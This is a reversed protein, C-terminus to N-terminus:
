KRAGQGEINTPKAKVRDPKESPTTLWPIGPLYSVVPFGRNKLEPGLCLALGYYAILLGALGGFVVELPARWWAKTKRKQLHAMGISIREVVAAAEDEQEELRSEQIADAAGIMEKTWGLPEVTQKEVPILEPPITEGM